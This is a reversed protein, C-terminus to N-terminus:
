KKITTKSFDWQGMPHHFFGQVQAKLVDVYPLVYLYIFPADDMHIQQIQYYIQRRKADDTTTRGQNALDIAQQSTWGTHYNQTQEPLIAYSVLEDPDIIDNTWGSARMEFKNNRYNDTGVSQEVPQIDLNIGIKSWMDKLATALAQGGASGQTIQIAVKGGNPISSAAMLTKAQNLDFPYGKQDKNWYLAGNPMFSNSIEGVGFNIVDILAQKDTAYNLAQRVKVDNLPANRTNMIIFNNYTSTFVKVQLKSDKKLDPVRNLPVNYMGDIEGGQMQLIRNNDDPVTTIKVQDLLPLGKGWYKDNKKLLIYEGKKWEALAFPGTGLTQDVLKDEGIKKVFAESLISSNFMSIDALFPSWVQKLTIVVTTDDPATIDKVPELTFTWGSKQNTKARMLSFVVDSAKLPTGDSFLVGQRLHFTYTLGDPAVEWKEALAPALSLGDDAVRILQDYISMFIWIDVNGDQTVPDLNDSDSSRSFIFTGGAAAAPAATTPKAATTPTAAGAAGGAAPSASSGAAPTPTVNQNITIPASTATPAATGAAAPATTATAPSSGCAALLAPLAGAAGLTAIGGLLRRRSLRLRASTLTSPDQM